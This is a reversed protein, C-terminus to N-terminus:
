IHIDILMGPSSRVTELGDSGYTRDLGDRDDIIHEAERAFRAPDHNHNVLLGDARSFFPPFTHVPVLALSSADM